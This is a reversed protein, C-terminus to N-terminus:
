LPMQVNVLVLGMVRKGYNSGPREIGVLLKGVAPWSARVPCWPGWKM